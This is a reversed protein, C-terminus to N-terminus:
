NIRLRLEVGYLAIRDGEQLMAGDSIPEGNVHVAMADPSVNLLWVGDGTAFVVMAKRPAESPLRLACSTSSGAQVLPALPFVDRNVQRVLRPRGPRKVEEPVVDVTQTAGSTSVEEADLGLLAAVDQNSDELPVNAVEAKAVTEGPAWNVRLVVKDSLGVEDGPHLPVPSTVERGNVATENTESLPVLWLIDGQWQLKAHQRSVFQSDVRLECGQGRGVTVVEGDLSQEEPERDPLQVRVRLRAKAWAPRSEILFQATSTSQASKLATLGAVVQELADLAERATPFRAAPVRACLRMVLEATVDSVSAVSRPDAEKPSRPPLRGTLMEFIVVGLSFQDARSDLELGLSQEPAMYNAAGLIQQPGTLRRDGRSKVLGLDSLKPLGRGDLLISHPTIYRHVYGHEELCVLARAVGVGIALAKNENMPGAAHMVEELSSGEVFELAVFESGTDPDTEVAYLSVVNMHRLEVTAAAGRLFRQKRIPDGVLDPDLIKVLVTRGLPLHRARYAHGLRSPGLDELLEYGRLHPLSMKSV